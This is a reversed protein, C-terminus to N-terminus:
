QEEHVKELKELKRELEELRQQLKLEQEQRAKLKEQFESSALYKNVEKMSENFSETNFYIMDKAGGIKEIFVNELNEMQETLGVTADGEVTEFVMNGGEMGSSIFFAREKLEGIDGLLGIDFEQMEKVGAVAQVTLPAGGRVVALSVAAGEKKERIIRQVGSASTVKRGDIATIVDGVQLGAAQAPSGEVVTGVMVGSGEPAGFHKQLEPSLSNLALGIYGRKAPSGVWHVVHKGDAEGVVKVKVKNGDGSRIEKVKVLVQKQGEDATAGTEDDHPPLAAPAAAAFLILGSLACGTILLRKWKDRTM